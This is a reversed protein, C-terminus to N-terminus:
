RVFTLIEDLRAYLRRLELAMLTFEAELLTDVDAGDQADLKDAIVDLFSVRLLRAKTDLVFGIRQEFILGLQSVQKGRRAHERVEDATLDVNKCKVVAAYDSPDKLECEDGLEFGEPLQGSILWESLLLAISAETALPRAPFSGIAERVASAVSEVATDSASDVALLNCTPDFYACVRSRKIFARPLLEALAAEKFEHRLRTGPKRGRETEYAAVRERVADELVSAPLLRESFGLAFLTGGENALTLESAVPVFGRKEMELAGPDTLPFEAISEPFSFPLRFDAHLALLAVNKFWM